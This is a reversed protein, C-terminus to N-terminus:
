QFLTDRIYARYQQLCVKCTDKLKQLEDFCKWYIEPEEEPDQGEAYYASSLEEPILRAWNSMGARDPDNFEKHLFAGLKRLADCLNNCLRMAEHSIYQNGEFSLFNLFRAVSEAKKYYYIPPGGDLPWLFDLLSEESMISNSIKFIGIDHNKISDDQGSVSVSQKEKQLQKSVTRESRDLKGAIEELTKGQNHLKLMREREAKKVRDTRKWDAARKIIIRRDAKRNM